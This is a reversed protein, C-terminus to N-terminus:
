DWYDTGATDPWVSEALRKFNCDDVGGTVGAESEFEV